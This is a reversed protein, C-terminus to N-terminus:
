AATHVSETQAEALAERRARFAYDGRENLYFHGTLGDESMEAWGQGEVFDKDEAGAWAFVMRYKENFCGVRYDFYGYIEGFHFKGTGNAAFHVFAPVQWNIYRVDWQEVQYIHWDGAYPPIPRKKGFLSFM